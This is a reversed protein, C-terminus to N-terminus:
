NWLSVKTIGKEISKTLYDSKKMKYFKVTFLFLLLVPIKQHTACTEKVKSNM